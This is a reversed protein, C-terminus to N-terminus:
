HIWCDGIVPEAKLPVRTYFIEGAYEMAWQVKKSVLEGMHKPCEVLIEDHVVNCINVIMFLNNDIIWDWLLILATKTIDASTGQIM